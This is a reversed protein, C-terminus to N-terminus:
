AQFPQNKAIAQGTEIIVPIKLLDQSLLQSAALAIVGPQRQEHKINIEKFIDIIRVSM